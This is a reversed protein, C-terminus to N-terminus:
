VGLYRNYYSIKIKSDDAIDESEVEIVNDGKQLSFYSSKYDILNSAFEGNLEARKNGVATTIVLTEGEEIKTNIKMFEGTTRNIIKPKTSPGEIEITFPTSWDGANYLNIVSEGETAFESPLQVPFKLGGIWTVIEKSTINVDQWYPNEAVLNIMYPITSLNTSSIIPSMEPECKIMRATGRNIYHLTGTLKPNFTRILKNRGEQNNKYQFEGEIVLYRVDLKSNTITAGDQNYSGVVSKVSEVNSFGEINTIFFPPSQGFEVSEGESNTYIITAM